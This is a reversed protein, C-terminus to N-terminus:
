WASEVEIMKRNVWERHSNLIVNPLYMKDHLYVLCQPVVYIAIYILNKRELLIMWIWKPRIKADDTDRPNRGIM